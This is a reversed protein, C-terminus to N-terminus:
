RSSRADQVAWEKRETAWCESYYNCRTPEGNHFREDHKRIQEM